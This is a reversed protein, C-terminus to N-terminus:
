EHHRVFLKEASTMVTKISDSVFYFQLEFARSPNSIKQNKLFDQINKLVEFYKSTTSYKKLIVTM